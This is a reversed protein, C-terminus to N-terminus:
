WIRVSFPHRIRHYLLFNLRLLLFRPSLPLCDNRKQLQLYHHIRLHKMPKGAYSASGTFSNSRLSGTQGVGHPKPCGATWVNLIRTWHEARVQHTIKDM